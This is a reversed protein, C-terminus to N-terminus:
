QIRRIRNFVTDKLNTVLLGIRKRKLHKSDYLNEVTINDNNVLHVNPYPACLHGLKTNFEQRRKDIGDARILLSSVIVKSSSQKESVLKLIEHYNSICQSTGTHIIIHSPNGLDNTTLRDTASSTITPTFHQHTPTRPSFRECDIYKGNSDILMIISNITSQNNEHQPPRNSQSKENKKRTLIEQTAHRVDNPSPSVTHIDGDSPDDDMLGSFSNSLPISADEPYQSQESPPDIEMTTLSQSNHDFLDSCGAPGSSGTSNDSSNNSQLLCKIQKIESKILHIDSKLKSNESKM